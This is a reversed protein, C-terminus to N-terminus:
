DRSLPPETRETGAHREELHRLLVVQAPTVIVTNAANTFAQAVLNVAVFVALGLLATFGIGVSALSGVTGALLAAVVQRAFTAWLRGDTLDWSRRIGLRHGGLAAIVPALSLRVGLVFLLVMSAISGFVATLAIAAGGADAVIMVLMPALLVALVVIFLMSLVLFSAIVVPIRRFAALMRSPLPTMADGDGDRREASTTAVLALTWAAVVAGLLATAILWPVATWALDGVLEWLRDVEADTLSVTGDDDTDLLNRIERGETSDFLTVALVFIPVGVAIWGALVLAGVPWLVAVVASFSETFWTSFSHPDRRPLPGAPARHETWRAGDWYRWTDVVEPDLYWGAVPMM